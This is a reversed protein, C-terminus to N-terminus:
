IHKWTIRKKIASITTYDMNYDKAIKRLSRPDKRIDLVQQETLKANGHKQGRAQRKKSVKDAVNDAHTGLFLHDPNVCARNDCTHCVVMGSPIPGHANEYALRHARKETWKGNIKVAIRWYGQHDVWGKSSQICSM